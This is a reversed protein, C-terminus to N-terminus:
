AALAFDGLKCASLDKIPPKSVASRDGAQSVRAAACAEPWSVYKVKAQM